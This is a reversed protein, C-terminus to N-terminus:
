IWRNGKYFAARLARDVQDKPVNAFWDIRRAPFGKVASFAWSDGQSLMRNIVASEAWFGASTPNGWGVPGTHYSSGWSNEIHGYEAGGPEIHYGDCSMCHAWSGQARAVGNADRAASFGQGSCIAVGYGQALAKKAEAWSKVNAADGAPYKKVEPELDDPVGSSGWQRCLTPDYKELTYTKSSALYVGRPLGGYQTVWRAAWVGLSGDGRLTGGGIEVRSGGYVAEEVLPKWEYKAGLKIQAALSKEFARSTGFSVCSGVPNQNHVLSPKGTVEECIQWLFVDTPDGDRASKGAPTDAFSGIGAEAKAIDLLDPSDIWGFAVPDGAVPHPPCNCSTTWYGVLAMSAMAGLLVAGRLAAGVWSSKAEDAM